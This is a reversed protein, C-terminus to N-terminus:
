HSQLAQSTHVEYEQQNKFDTLRWNLNVVQSQDFCSFQNELDPFHPIQHEISQCCSEDHSLHHSTVLKLIDAGNKFKKGLSPVKLHVVCFCRHSINSTCLREKLDSKQQIASYNMYFNSQIDKSPIYLNICMLGELKLGLNSLQSLLDSLQGYGIRYSNEISVRGRITRLM